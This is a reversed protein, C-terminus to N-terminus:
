VTFRAGQDSVIWSEALAPRLAGTEPDISILTDCMTRVVLAGSPEYANGPEISGPRTIAVRLVGGRRANAPAPRASRPTAATCAGMVLCLGAVVSRM